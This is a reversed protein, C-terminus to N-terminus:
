GGFHPPQRSYAQKASEKETPPATQKGRLRVYLPWSDRVHSTERHNRRHSPSRLNRRLWDMRKRAWQRNAQAVLACTAAVRYPWGRHFPLRAQKRWETAM